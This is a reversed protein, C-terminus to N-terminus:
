VKVKGDRMKLDGGVFTMVPKAEIARGTFPTNRGKSYFLDEDITEQCNMDIVVIDAPSGKRLSGAPLGMIEAPRCSYSYVLEKLTMLNKKVLETIMLSLAFDLSIVGFAAERFLGNKDERGHPAHDTAIVDITRDKLADMLAQRDRETRLPPKMKYVPDYSVITEDTLLLHHPTVEATVKLGREKAWRIWEVSGACSVHSIHLRSDSAQALLIDRAVAVTESVEPIGALGLISGYYGDHVLGEGTLSEDECHSFVITDFRSLYKFINLMLMSNNVFSGDDSFAKVGASLLSSYNSMEVGARNKTLAGVPYVRALNAQRAKEKVFELTLSNDIAPVTNPMCFVSTVGGNVAAATGSAITEKSEEGPERLHVHLDVMGPALYKGELDIVEFDDKNEEIYPSIDLVVGDDILIDRREEIDQAPDIMIAGKLLLKKGDM